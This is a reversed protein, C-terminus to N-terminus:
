NVTFTVTNTTGTPTTVGISRAGTTATSTVSLTANITTGTGNVVFTGPVLSVGGTLGTLATSGTLGVGTLVVPVSLSGTAPHAASIPAISVLGVATGNLASTQTGASDTVSLTELELGPSQATLPKFQVTVICTGGSALTTTGGAPGCTTLPAGDIAYDAANAGVLAPNSIGTLTVTGTNHLTFITSPDFTCQAIGVVGVGPCNSVHSV